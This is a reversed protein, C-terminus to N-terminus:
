KKPLKTPTDTLGAIYDISVKEGELTHKLVQVVADKSIAIRTIIKKLLIKTQLKQQIEKM